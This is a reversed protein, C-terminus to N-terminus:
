ILKFAIFGKQKITYRKQFVTDSIQNDDFIVKAMKLADMLGKSLNDNDPKRRHPVDDVRRIKSTSIPYTLFFIAIIVHYDSGAIGLNKIMFAMSEKYKTYWTPNYTNVAFKGNKLKIVRFRPRPTAQPDLDIIHWQQSINFAEEPYLKDNFWQHWEQETKPGIDPQEIEM